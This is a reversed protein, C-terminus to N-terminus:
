RSGKLFLAGVVGVMALSLLSFGVAGGGEVTKRVERLSLFVFLAGGLLLIGPVISAQQVDLARHIDVELHKVGDVM